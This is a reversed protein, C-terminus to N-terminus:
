LILNMLIDVGRPFQTEGSTFVLLNFGTSFYEIKGNGDYM